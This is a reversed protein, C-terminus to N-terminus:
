VFVDHMLSLFCLMFSEWRKIGNCTLSKVFHTNDWKIWRIKMVIKNWMLNCPAVHFWQMLEVMVHLEWLRKRLFNVYFYFNWKANFISRHHGFITNHIHQNYEFRSSSLRLLGLSDTFGEIKCIEKIAGRHESALSIIGGSLCSFSYVKLFM